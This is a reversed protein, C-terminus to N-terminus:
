QSQGECYARIGAASFRVIHEQLSPLDMSNGMGVVGHSAMQHKVHVAYVLQGLLSHICLRLRDEALGPCLRLLAERLVSQVPGMVERAFMDAPLHPNQMERSMLQCMVRGRSEDVLPELFAAVFSGLLGELTAQEGSDRFVRDVSAVRVERVETLLGKFVEYYLKEKSGFYYNVAAVNCEARATIDRVATAAYGQEAFLKAGAALLREKVIHCSCPQGHCKDLGRQSM